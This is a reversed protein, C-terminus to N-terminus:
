SASLSEASATLMLRYECLTLGLHDNWEVAILSWERREYFRRARAHQSPTYLRAQEYRRERIATIAHEHLTSAVGRGWWEPLVFLQWFHALGPIRPRSRVPVSRDPSGERGPYFAVHGVPEGDALALLAWTESDSLLEATAEPDDAVRPPTWRHPAFEVYSDFGAQVNRLISDLDAVTAPRTAITPPM